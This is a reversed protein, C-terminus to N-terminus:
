VGTVDDSVTCYIGCILAVPVADAREGKREKERDSKRRYIHLSVM